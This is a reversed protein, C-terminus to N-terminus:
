YIQSSHSQRDFFTGPVSLEGVEDPISKRTEDNANLVHLLNNRECLKEFSSNIRIREGRESNATVSTADQGSSANISRIGLQIWPTFIYITILISNQMRDELSAVINGM